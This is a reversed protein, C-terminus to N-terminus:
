FAPPLAVVAIFGYLHHGDCIKIRVLNFWIIDHALNRTKRNIGVGYNDEIFKITNGVLCGLSHHRM